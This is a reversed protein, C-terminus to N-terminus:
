NKITVNANDFLNIFGDVAIVDGESLGSSVIIIDNIKKSVTINKLVAKKNQIVYVQTVNQNSITSSVPIM